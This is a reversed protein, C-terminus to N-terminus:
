GDHLAARIKAFLRQKTKPHPARPPLSLAFAAALRENERILKEARPGFRHRAHEFSALENADLAGLAYLRAKIEFERYNM